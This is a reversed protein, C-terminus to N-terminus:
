AKFLNQAEDKTTALLILDDAFAPASLSHSTDIVNGKMQELQVM